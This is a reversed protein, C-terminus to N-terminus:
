RKKIFPSFLISGMRLGLALCCFGIFLKGLVWFGIVVIEIMVDVM